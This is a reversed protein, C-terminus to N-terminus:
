KRQRESLLHRTKILPFWLELPKTGEHETKGLRKSTHDSRLGLVFQSDKKKKYILPMAFDCASAHPKCDTTEPNFGLTAVLDNWQGLVGVENYSYKSIAKKWNPNKVGM